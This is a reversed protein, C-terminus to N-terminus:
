GTELSINLIRGLEINMRDGSMSGRSWAAGRGKGTSESGRTGRWDGHSRQKTTEEVYFIM